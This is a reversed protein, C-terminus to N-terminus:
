RISIGALRFARDSKRKLTRKRASWVKSFKLFREVIESDFYYNPNELDAFYRNVAQKIRKCAIIEGNKVAEAYDNWITM